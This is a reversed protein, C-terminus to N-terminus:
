VNRKLKQAGVGDINAFDLFFIKPQMHPVLLTITRILEVMQETHCRCVLKTYMFFWM